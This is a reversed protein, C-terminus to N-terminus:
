EDWPTQAQIRYRVTTGLRGQRVIDLMHERSIAREETAQEGVWMVEVAFEEPIQAFLIEFTRVLRPTQGAELDWTEANWDASDPLLDHVAWSLLSPPQERFLSRRPWTGVPVTGEVHTARVIREARDWDLAGILIRMQLDPTM